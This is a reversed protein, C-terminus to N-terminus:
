HRAARKRQPSAPTPPVIAATRNVSPPGSGVIPTLAYTKTDGTSNDISVAMAAVRANGAIATVVVEVNTRDKRRDAADLGLANFITDLQLQQFPAITLTQEAIASTRNGPEYLRINMLGTFGGVENLILMWRSGHLPDLSQELGDFFLPRTGSSAASTLAEALTTPLQLERPPTPATGGAAPQL